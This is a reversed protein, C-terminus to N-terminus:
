KGKQLCASRVSKKPRSKAGLCTTMACGIDPGKGLCRLRGSEAVSDYATRRLSRVFLHVTRLRGLPWDSGTSERTLHQVAQLNRLRRPNCFEFRYHSNSDCKRRWCTKVASFNRRRKGEFYAFSAWKERCNTLLGSQLSLVARPLVPNRCRSKEAPCMRLGTELFAHPSHLALM